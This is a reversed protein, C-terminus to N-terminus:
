GSGDVELVIKGINRNAEMRRHADAVNVWNYVTDVVPRLRSEDFLPLMLSAFEQTLRAKYEPTRNRLTSGILRARKRFFLRLDAQELQYGGMTALLIIRGDQALAKMNDAFYPAGIFDLILAAGKGQTETLVREAFNEQRYDIAVNAGLDRCMALKSASATVFAQGRTAKVLQIAATGVGSAGAHILVRQGPKLQGLWYLAQFATLFAEPIAAAETFTMAPPMPLALDAPVTVYEAYGGGPLLGFVRDGEAWGEVGKGTREVTGAFELGLIESAGPPPPYHGQRQLLDARNLATAAVRVLLEGQKPSPRRRKGVYLVDPDGPQDFLVAKM